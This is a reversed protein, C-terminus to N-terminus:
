KSFSNSKVNSDSENKIKNFLDFNSEYEANEYENIIYMNYLQNSEKTTIIEDKYTVFPFGLVFMTGHENTRIYVKIDNDTALKLTLYLGLGHHNLNILDSEDDKKTSFGYKFIKTINQKTIGPGNDEIILYFPQCEDTTGCNIRLFEESLKMINKKNKPKICSFKLFPEYNPTTEKKKKYCSSVADASNTVINVLIRSLDHPNIICNLDLFDLGGIEAFKINNDSFVKMNRSYSKSNIIISLLYNHLNILKKDKNSMYSGHESISSIFSEIIETQSVINKLIKKSNIFMNDSNETKPFKNYITKLINYQNNISSTIVALPSRLEHTISFIHEDYINKLSDQYQQETKDNLQKEKEIIEKEQKHILFYELIINLIIVISFLGIILYMNLISHLLIISISVSSFLVIHFIHILRYKNFINKM